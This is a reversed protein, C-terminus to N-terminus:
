FHCPVLQGYYWKYPEWYPCIAKSCLSCVCLTETVVSNDVCSCISVVLFCTYTYIARCHMNIHCFEGCKGCTVPCTAVSLFPDDCLTPNAKCGVPDLDSCPSQASALGVKSLPYVHDYLNITM